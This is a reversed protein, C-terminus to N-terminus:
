TRAFQKTFGAAAIKEAGVFHRGDIFVASRMSARIRALDLTGFQPWETVLVVADSGQCADYEDRAYTVDDGLIRRAMESAVPDFARVTAGSERLLRVLEISPAAVTTDTGPKFSLGLLAVTKDTLTGLEHQLRQAIRKQQAQNVAHASNLLPVDVGVSAAFAIFGEMDKPLCSGGYGLGARLYSSGIRPDAGVGRTINMVDVGIRECVAAVTNAFSVKVALFCNSVQKILEAERQTTLFMPSDLHHFLEMVKAAAHESECGVILRDPRRFDDIASGERLFEPMAVVDFTSGPAINQRIAEVVQSSTGVLITSKLIVVTYSRLHAAIAKAASLVSSLDLRGDAGLPTGVCILVADANPIAEEYTDTFRLHGTDACRNVLESLGPEFFPMARDRLRRIREGNIDHCVVTHGAEALCAAAVLGVRGAGIVGVQM